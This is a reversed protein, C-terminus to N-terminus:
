QGVFLSTDMEPALFVNNRVKALFSPEGDPHATDCLAIFEEKQVHTILPKCPDYAGHLVVIMALGPSALRFEAVHEESLLRTVFTELNM